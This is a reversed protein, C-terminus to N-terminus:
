SLLNKMINKYDLTASVLSIGISSCCCLDCYTAYEAGTNCNICVLFKFVFVNHVSVGVLAM